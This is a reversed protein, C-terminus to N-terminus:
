LETYHDDYATYRLKCDLAFNAAAVDIVLAGGAGDNNEWGPHHLELAAYALNELAQCLTSSAREGDDDIGAIGIEALEIQQDDASKCVIDEVAGSDGYGDFVVEVSAIGLQRLPEIVAQKLADIRTTVRARNALHWATYDTLPPITTDM